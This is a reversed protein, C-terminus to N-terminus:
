KSFFLIRPSPPPDRPPLSPQQSQASNHWSTQSLVTEEYCRLILTATVVCLSVPPLIAGPASCGALTARWVIQPGIQDRKPQCLLVYVGTYCLLKTQTCGDSVFSRHVAEALHTSDHLWIFVSWGCVWSPCRFFWLRTVSCLLSPCLM